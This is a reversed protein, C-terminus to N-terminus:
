INLVNKPLIFGLLNSFEEQKAAFTRIRNGRLTGTEISWYFFPIVIFRFLRVVLKETRTKDTKKEKQKFILCGVM